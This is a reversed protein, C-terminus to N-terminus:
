EHLFVTRLWSYRGKANRYLGHEVSGVLSKFTRKLALWSERVVFALFFSKTDDLHVMDRECYVFGLFFFFSICLFSIGTEVALYM